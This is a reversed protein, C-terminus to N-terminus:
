SILRRQLSDTNKDKEKQWECAPCPLHPLDVCEHPYPALEPERKQRSDEAPLIAGPGTPLASLLRILQRREM